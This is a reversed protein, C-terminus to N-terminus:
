SPMRINGSSWFKCFKTPFHFLCVSFQLKRCDKYFIGNTIVSPIKKLCFFNLSFSSGSVPLEKVLYYVKLKKQGMKCNGMCHYRYDPSCFYGLLLACYGDWVLWNCSTNWFYFNGVMCYIWQKSTQKSDTPYDMPM